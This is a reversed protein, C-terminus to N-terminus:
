RYPNQGETLPYGKAKSGKKRSQDLPYINSPFEKEYILLNDGQEWDLGEAVLSLGHSTSKVFAIEDIESNILRACSKRIDIVQQIWKPYKFAGCEASEALFKEVASRVRRSAPAVGAHDLYIYKETVPFDRRYRQFSRDNM